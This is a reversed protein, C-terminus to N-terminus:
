LLPDHTKYVREKSQSGGPTSCRYRTVYVNPKTIEWKVNYNRDKHKEKTKTEGEKITRTLKM